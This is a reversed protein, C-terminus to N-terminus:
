AKSELSKEFNEDDWDCPYCGCKPCRWGKDPGMMQQTYQEKTLFSSAGCSGFQEDKKCHILYPSPTGLPAPCDDFGHERADWVFGDGKLYRAVAQASREDAFHVAENADATWSRCDAFHGWYVPGGKEFSHELLWVSKM